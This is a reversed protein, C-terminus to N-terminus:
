KVNTVSARLASGTLAVWIMDVATQPDIHGLALGSIAYVVALASLIYTKKGKLFDIM